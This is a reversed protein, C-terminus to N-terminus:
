QLMEKLLEVTSILRARADGEIRDFMLLSSIAFEANQIDMRLNCDHCYFGDRCYDQDAIWIRQDAYKGCHKCLGPNIAADTM